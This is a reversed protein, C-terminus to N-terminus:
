RNLVDDRTGAAIAMVEAVLDAPVSLAELTAQLHGAVADFHSDNLGKEAVLRQHAERVNRGPYNPLGGFAYTLFTKQHGRQKKMDVGEFFPKLGPDAMIRDYFIDVAAGIAPKGGLRAFLTKGAPSSQPM